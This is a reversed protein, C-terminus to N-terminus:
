LILSLFYWDGFYEEELVWKRKEIPVNKLKERWEGFLNDLAKEQTSGTNGMFGYETNGDVEVPYHSSRAWFSGDSCRYLIISVAIKENLSDVHLEFEDVIRFFNGTLEEYKNFVEVWKYM